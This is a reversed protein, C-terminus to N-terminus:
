MSSTDADDDSIPLTDVAGYLILTDAVCSAVPVITVRVATTTGDDPLWVTNVVSDPVTFSRDDVVLETDDDTDGDDVVDTLVLPLLVADIVALSVPDDLPVAVNVTLALLEDVTDRVGDTVLDGIDLVKSTDPDTVRVAVDSAVAVVDVVADVVADVVTDVDRDNDPVGDQLRERVTAALAAPGSTSYKQFVPPHLSQETM